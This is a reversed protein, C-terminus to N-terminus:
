FWEPDLTNDLYDLQFRKIRLSQGDEVNVASVLLQVIPYTVAKALPFTRVSGSENDIAGSVVDLNVWESSATKARLIWDKPSYAVEGEEFDINSISYSNFTKDASFTVQLFQTKFTTGYVAFMGVTVYQQPDSTLNRATIYLRICKARVPYDLVFTRYLGTDNRTDGVVTHVTDWDVGDNSIQFEWDRPSVAGSARNTTRNGVVYSRILQADTLQLSLWQPTAPSVVTGMASMWGLETPSATFALWPRLSSQVSSAAAVQGVTADGTMPQHLVGEWVSFITDQGSVWGQSTPDDSLAKWGATNSNYDSSTTVTQGSMSSSTMPLTVRTVANIFDWTAPKDCYEVFWESDERLEGAYSFSYVGPPLVTTFPEWTGAAKASIPLHAAPLPISGGDLKTVLLKGAAGNGDPKPCRWLRFNSRVGIVVVRGVADWTCFLNASAVDGDFLEAGKGIKTLGSHHSFPAPIMDPMPYIPAVEPTVEPVDDIFWLELTALALGVISMPIAGTGTALVAISTTTDELLNLEGEDTLSNGTNSTAGYSSDVLPYLSIGHTLYYRCASTNFLSLNFKYKWKGKKLKLYPLTAGIGTPDNIVRNFPIINPTGSYVQNNALSANAHTYEFKHYNLVSMRNPTAVWEAVRNPSVIIETETEVIDFHSVPFQLPNALCEFEPSNMLFDLMGIGPASGAAVTLARWRIAKVQIPAPLIYLNEVSVSSLPAYESALIWTDSNVTQYEIAYRGVRYDTRLHKFRHGVITAFQGAPFTYTVTSNSGTGLWGDGNGDVKRNITGMISYSTSFLNNATIIVGNTFEVRTPTVSVTEPPYPLLYVLDSAEDYYDGVTTNFSRPNEEIGQILGSGKFKVRREMDNKIPSTLVETGDTLVTKIAADQTLSMDALQLGTPGFWRGKDVKTGNVKVAELRVTDVNLDTILDPVEAASYIHDAKLFSLKETKDM